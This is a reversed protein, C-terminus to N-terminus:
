LSSVQVLFIGQFEEFKNEMGFCNNRMNHVKLKKICWTKLTMPFDAINEMAAAIKKLVNAVSWKFKMDETNIVYIHQQSYFVNLSM